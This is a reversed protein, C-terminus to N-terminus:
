TCCDRGHVGLGALHILGSRGEQYSDAIEKAENMIIKIKQVATRIGSLIHGDTKVVPYKQTLIKLTNEIQNEEESVRQELDDFSM